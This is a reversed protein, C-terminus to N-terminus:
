KKKFEGSREMTLDVKVEFKTNKYQQLWHYNEWQPYTLFHSKAIEGLALIDAEYYASLGLVEMMKDELVKNFYEEFESHKSVYDYGTEINIFDAILPVDIKVQPGDDALKLEIKPKVPQEISIVVNRDPEKPDRVTVFEEEMMGNLIYYAMAQGEDMIHSLKDETFIAVGAFQGKYEKVSLVNGAVFDDRLIGTDPPNEEKELDEDTEYKSVGVVPVVPSREESRMDFYMWYLLTELTTSHYKRNFIYDYFKSVFMDEEPTAAKLFEQASTISVAVYPNSKIKVGRVMGGIISEIGQRCVENSLVILKLHAINVTKSKVDKLRSQATFFNPAEMEIIESDEKGKSKSANGEGSTAKAFEFTYRYKDVKGKDIGVAILYSMSDIENSDFCGSLPVVSALVLLLCLAKKLKRM